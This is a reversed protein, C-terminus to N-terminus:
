FRDKNSFRSTGIKYYFGGVALDNFEPTAIYKGHNHDSVKKEIDSIKTNYDTKTTLDSVDPIKNEIDTIKANLDTKKALGSTDPIKKDADSIKKESDSKDTDYTTKLIFGTTDINNVKAVM